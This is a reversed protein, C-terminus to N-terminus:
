KKKRGKTPNCKQCQYTKQLKEVTMGKKKATNKAVSAPYTVSYGCKCALTVDPQKPGKARGKTPHCKQCKYNKVLDAVPVKLTDAKKQLANPNCKVERGCSCKLFEPFADRNIRSKRGRRAKEMKQSIESQVQVITNIHYDKEEKNLQKWVGALELEEKSFATIDLFCAVAETIGITRDDGPKWCFMRKGKRKVLDYRKGNKGTLITHDAMLTEYNTM